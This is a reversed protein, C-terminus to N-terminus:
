AAHAPLARHRCWGAGASLCAPREVRAAGPRYRHPVPRRQDLPPDSARGVTVAATDVAADALLWRAAADRESNGRPMGKADFDILAPALEEKRYNIDAATRAITNPQGNLNRKTVVQVKDPLDARLAGLAIAQDSRIKEIVAALEGVNAIRLRWAAGRAMVCASGNSKVSGDPALSIRKTLPGGIKEFVTIEGLCESM